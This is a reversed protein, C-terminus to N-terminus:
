KNLDQLIMQSAIPHYFSKLTEFTSFAVDRGGVCNKLARYLPRVFKMRGQVSLFAVVHPIMNKYNNKLCLLQWRFKIESNKISSFQYSVDLEHIIDHTLEAEMLNELFMIKQKTTFRTFDIKRKLEVNSKIWGEVLDLCSLELERDYNPTIIPHGPTKFWKTWEIENMRTESIKDKFYEIFSEKWQDTTISSFAFKKVHFKLYPEFMTPGGVLNELYYLFNYGKEYPVSSFAGDPDIGDLEPVLKTLPSDVGFHDISEKLEKLGILSEFQRVKEGYMKGLIKREIFVTFGENLWFHQWDSNTVLNGMWSHAIEHAVVNALSRDGALLTPTVFTLCPNEMGGFPFSSPLVLIDYKGWCYPILFEEAVALFKETESFEFCCSDLIEEESWCTTRPGIDKGKLAGVALAILYSPIVVPQNFNYTITDDDNIVNGKSLASMLAVLPNRVTVSAAYTFKVRPTDQCPLLSRAHIPQCQTFLYPHKKGITQEPELWQAATCNAGTRYFIRIRFEKDKINKTDIYLASGFNDHSKELHFNLHKFENEGILEVRSIELHKTDLILYEDHRQARVTLRVEGIIAKVDFDIKWDLSIHSINYRDTNSYSSPDAM